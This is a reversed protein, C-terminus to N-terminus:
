AELLQRWLGARADQRRWRAVAFLAISRLGPEGTVTTFCHDGCQWANKSLTADDREDSQHNQATSGSWRM